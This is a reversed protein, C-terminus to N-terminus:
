AKRFHMTWKVRDDAEEGAKMMWLRYYKGTVWHDVFDDYYRSGPNGSQGGPYVGYAEIGDTMAVIMRWSPGHDPGTANIIGKGGGIPLHLRSFPDIVRLLHRIKTDKAKEWDLNNQASLKDLSDAATKLSALLDDELTEKEPTSVDDIWAYASDKHLSEILVYEGPWPLPVNARSFEDKWIKQELERWWLHFVTSGPEGPDAKNNWKQYFEFYKKLRDDLKEVPLRTLIDRSLEAKIVYNSTQMAMMDQPSLNNATDLFRNVMFGRYVPFVNGTYYPYSTDASLQNASSVYGRSPNELHPNETEPITGKWFYASDTGPMVFDGQRRWKAPFTGQQWIGYDGNRSAILCNQGPCHLNRIAKVGDSYSKAHNLGYFTLGDNSPEHAQWRVALNSVNKESNRYNNDYMVPGIATYAVTDLLDPKGKIRIIEVRKSTPLWENNFRYANKTEDQFEIEYYDKVDRGANTFGFSIDENFGIIVNPSGPFTAGYASFAPCSLQMEFWLSPLNLGLHPDNCLIPRGSRTKTGGVAWNNSGNEPNPQYPPLKTISDSGAPFRFYLSDADAPRRLDMAASAPYPSEPTNPQIPKLSDSLYPYLKEFDQKSFFDRANTFELDDEGGALDFSMYKLFLATKLPSWQEPSYGLLKYEIPLQSEKLQTIWANVGKTYAEYQAKSEPTKDAEEVSREAAYVMGLRRMSRDYELIRGEPGEGLIESLRGAAAHTQFEMQWLRFKAHLYGQVYYLDTENRAFVHPVLREDFYVDVKDQLDPLLLDENFGADSPEANQWIGHQPSLLRGLPAPLVKRTDFVIILGITLLFAFALYVFRM